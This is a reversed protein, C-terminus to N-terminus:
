PGMGALVFFGALPAAASSLLLCSFASAVGTAAPAGWRFVRSLTPHRVTFREKPRDPVNRAEVARAEAVGPM